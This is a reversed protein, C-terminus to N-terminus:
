PWGARCGRADGVGLAGTESKSVPNRLHPKVDVSWRVTILSGTIPRAPLPALLHGQAGEKASAAPAALAAGAATLPLLRRM